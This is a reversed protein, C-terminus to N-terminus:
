ILLSGAQETSANRMSHFDIVGISCLSYYAEKERGSCPNLLIKNQDYLSMITKKVENRTTEDEFMVSMLYKMNVTSEEIDCDVSYKNTLEHKLLKEDEEDVKQIEVAFLINGPIQMLINDININSNDYFNGTFCVGYKELCQFTGAKTESVDAFLNKKWDGNKSMMDSHEIIKLEGSCNMRMYVLADDLACKSITIGLNRCVEENLRKEFESIEDYAGAYNYAKYYVAMFTYAILRQNYTKCFSTIRIRNGTIECLKTVLQKRKENLVAPKVLYIKVYQNNGLFFVGDERQVALIGLSQQTPKPLSVLSRNLQKIRRIEEKSLKAEGM